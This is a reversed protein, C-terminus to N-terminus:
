DIDFDIWADAAQTLELSDITWRLTDAAGGTLEAELMASKGDPATRVSFRLGAPAGLSSASRLALPGAGVRVARVEVLVTAVGAGGFIRVTAAAEAHRGEAGRYHATLLRRRQGPRLSAPESVIRREVAGLAHYVRGPLRLGVNAGILAVKAPGMTPLGWDNTGFNVIGDSEFRFPIFKEGDKAGTFHCGSFTVGNRSKSERLLTEHVNEFYAGHINVAAAAELDIVIGGPRGGAEFRGGYINVCEAARLTLSTKSHSEFSCHQFSAVNTTWGAVYVGYPAMGFTCGTFVAQQLLKNCEFNKDSQLLMTVGDLRCHDVYDRVTLKVGHSGGHLSLNSLSLAAVGPEKNVILPADLPANQNDILTIGAGEGALAVNNPMRIPESLVYRGRPLLVQAGTQLATGAQEAQDLAAQIAAGDLSTTLSTVAPFHARAAALNPFVESLPRLRADGQAGFDLASFRRDASPPVPAGPLISANTQGAMNPTSSVLSQAALGTFATSLFARRDNVRDM